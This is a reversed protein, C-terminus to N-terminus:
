HSTKPEVDSMAAPPVLLDGKLAGQFPKFSQLLSGVSFAGGSSAVNNGSAAAASASAPCQTPLSPSLAKVESFSRGGHLGRM